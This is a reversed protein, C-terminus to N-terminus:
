KVLHMQDKLILILKNLLNVIVPCLILVQPKKVTPDVKHLASILFTATKGTGSQSQAILDRNDLMPRIAKRQIASPYEFGMSYIGRLINENIDLEDFTKIPDYIIKEKEDSNSPPHDGNNSIKDTM